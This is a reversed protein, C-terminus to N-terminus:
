LYTIVDPNLPLVEAISLSLIQDSSSHPIGLNLVEFAQGSCQQNLIQEMYYPYTEDDRSFYGFTSSAGLTVVRVIGDSKLDAFEKGRFGNSNITVRFLAGTQHDHDVRVQNPYYKSYGGLENGHDSVTHNDVHYKDPTTGYMLVSPGVWFAFFLRLGLELLLVTVSITYVGFALWRGIRESISM